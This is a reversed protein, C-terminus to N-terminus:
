GLQATHELLLFLLETGILRKLLLHFFSSFFFFILDEIHKSKRSILYADFTTSVRSSNNSWVDNPVGNVAAGHAYM